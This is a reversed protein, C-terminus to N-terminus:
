IPSSSALFIRISLFKLSTACIELFYITKIMKQLKLVFKNYIKGKRRTSPRRRDMYRVERNGM